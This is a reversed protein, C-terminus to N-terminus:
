EILLVISIKGSPDSATDSYLCVKQYTRSTDIASLTKATIAGSVSRHYVSIDKSFYYVKDNVKIRRGDVAQVNTATVAPSKAHVISDIGTSNMRFRFVTGTTLESDHKTYYYEKGDILITYLWSYGEPTPMFSSTKVIGMKFKQNLIDNTFIVNIDDFAGTKNTFWIKGGPITGGPLDSWKLLRATVENGPDDFVIDFIKVNDTVYSDGLLREERNIYTEGPFNYPVPSLAVTDEDDTFRYTVLKGKYEQANSTVNFTATMGDAMLLKASYNIKRTGNLEASYSLYTDLVVAYGSNDESGFGEINVIKGDYGLYVVINNGVSLDINMPNIKSYEIDRSIDYPVNDISISSPSLRSPTVATIKGGVKNDFVAIYRNTGWIDSVQYVVDKKEIQTIDIFESDKIIQLDGHLSISGARKSSAVYGDAIEPKSYVPSFIVGFSYTSKDERHNLVISSSRTLLAFASAFDIRQGNHYYPINAPLLMTKISGDDLYGVKGDAAWSVSLKVPESVSIARLISGNKIVFYNETGLEIAIGDPNAFIGKDTLVQGKDLYSVTTSDGFVIAKTYYGTSDLFSITQGSMSKVNSSLLRDLMLVAAWRPVSDNNRLNVGDSLGLKKAMSIYNYPWSGTLDMETYGLARVLIACIQAYTVPRAPYFNGDSWGTIYGEEVAANIYGTSWSNAPVDPFGTPGHMVAANDELGAAIVIMKAFQERTLPSNPNFNRAPAIIGFSALRKLAGAYVANEPVDTFFASSAAAASSGSSSVSAVAGSGASSGSLAAIAQAGSDAFVPSSISFVSVLMVAAAFLSIYQLLKKKVPFGGNM